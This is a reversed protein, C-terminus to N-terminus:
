GQSLIIALLIGIVVKSVKYKTVFVMTMLQTKDAMEALSVVGASVLYAVIQSDM